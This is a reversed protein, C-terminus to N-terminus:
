KLRYIIFDEKGSLGSDGTVDVANDLLWDRKDHHNIEWGTNVAPGFTGDPRVMGFGSTGGQYHTNLIFYKVNGKEAQEELWPVDVKVWFACTRRTYFSFSKAHVGAVCSYREEGLNETLYRGVVGTSDTRKYIGVGTHALLLPVSINIVLFILMVVVYARLAKTRETRSLSWVAGFVGLVLIVLVWWYTILIGLLLELGLAQAVSYVGVFDIAFFVSFMYFMFVLYAFSIAFVLPLLHSDKDKKFRQYPLMIGLAAFAAFAPMFVTQRHPAYQGQYYFFLMGIMFFIWFAYKFEKLRRLSFVLGALLPVFVLGMFPTFIIISGMQRVATWFGMYERGPIAGAANQGMVIFLDIWGSDGWLLPLAIYIVFVVAVGIHSILIHHFMRNRFLRKFDFKQKMLYFYICPLIALIPVAGRINTTTSNVFWVIASLYIFSVKKRELGEILFWFALLCYFILASDLLGIRSFAMEFPSVAFFFCALYAVSDNFQKRLLLFLLIVSLASFLAAPFVIAFKNYGLVLISLVYPIVAFPRSYHADRWQTPEDPMHPYIILKPDQIAYTALEAWQSDDGGSLDSTNYLRLFLTILVLALIIAIRHTTKEKSM